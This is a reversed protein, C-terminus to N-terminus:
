RRSRVCSIQQSQLNVSSERRAARRSAAILLAAPQVQNSFLLSLSPSLCMPRGQVTQLEHNWFRITDPEYCAVTSVKTLSSPWTLSAALSQPNAGAAKSPARRTNNPQWCTVAPQCGCSKLVHDARTILSATVSQPNVTPVRQVSNRPATVSTVLSSTSRHVVYDQDSVGNKIIGSINIAPQIDDSMEPLLDGPIPAGGKAGRIPAHNRIDAVLDHVKRSISGVEYNAGAPIVRDVLRPYQIFLGM